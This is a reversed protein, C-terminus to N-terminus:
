RGQRPCAASIRCPLAEASIGPISIIVANDPRGSSDCSGFLFSEVGFVWGQEFCVVSRRRGLYGVRVPRRGAGDALRHCRRNAGCESVADLLGDAAM